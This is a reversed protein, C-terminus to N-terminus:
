ENINDETEKLAALLELDTVNRDVFADGLERLLIFKIKGNEMKKDSRSIELIEEPTIGSYSVPLDFMSFIRRVKECSAEDILGKNMSIWAAAVSGIAVCQGHLLRFDMLKEIAHGLTHGFNLLMREGKEFPDNEVVARKIECSRIIMRSLVSYDRGKISEAHEEVYDLYEIDKIFGHKIIEAMGCAFQEEPLTKLTNINMYVLAPMHFAGVMNKYSEFDVGTKGGISSDVQALLSTPVQVFRIGRLYTAATFGTLDGVVGGGLALLVDKRDFHNQILFEYLSQVTKLNKNEEGAPFVFSKVETFQERCLSAIEDAYLPAVNSDSVICLRCGKVDAQELAEAIHDFSDNIIIDYIWENNKHVALM